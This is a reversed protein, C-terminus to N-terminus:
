RSAPEVRCSLPEIRALRRLDERFIRDEQACDQLCSLNRDLRESADAAIRYIINNGDRETRVLGHRRLYALHKSVKIQPEELIAQIECVCLPGRSLLHLIRLRTRDCMCKYIVVLDMTM